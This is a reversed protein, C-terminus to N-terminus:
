YTDYLCKEVIPRFHISYFEENNKRIEKKDVTNINNDKSISDMMGEISQIVANLYKVINSKIQLPINGDLIINLKSNAVNSANGYHIIKM